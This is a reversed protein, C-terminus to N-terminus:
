THTNDGLVSDSNISTKSEEAQSVGTAEGERLAMGGVGGGELACSRAARRKSRLNLDKSLSFSCKSVSSVSPKKNIKM